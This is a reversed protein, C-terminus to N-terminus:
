INDNSKSIDVLAARGPHAAYARIAETNSASSLNCICLCTRELMDAIADFSADGNVSDARGAYIVADCPPCCLKEADDESPVSVSIVATVHANYFFSAKKLVFTFAYRVYEQEIYFKRIGLSSILFEALEKFTQMAEYTPEGLAFLGCARQGVKLTKMLTLRRRILNKRITKSGEYLLRRAGEHSIGLLKGAEKHSCGNNVANFIVQEREKILKSNEIIAQETEPSTIDIIKMRKRDNARIVPMGMEYLTKYVYRILHTSSQMTWQFQQAYTKKRGNIEPLQPSIERDVMCSPIQREWGEFQVVTITVKEPHQSPAQLAALLCANYFDESRHSYFLFEVTENESVVQEVAAQLRADMDVDYVKNHGIFSCVAM